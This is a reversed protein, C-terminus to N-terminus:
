QEDKENLMENLEKSFETLLGPQITRQPLGKKTM